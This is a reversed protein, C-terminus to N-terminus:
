DWASINDYRQEVEHWVRDSVEDAIVDLRRHLPIQQDVLIARIEPHDYFNAGQSLMFQVFTSCDSGRTFGFSQAKLVGADIMDLLAEEPIGTVIEGCNEHIDELILARDVVDADAALVEFQTPRIILM